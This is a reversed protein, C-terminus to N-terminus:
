HFLFNKWESCVAHTPLRDSQMQSSIRRCIMPLTQKGTDTEANYMRDSWHLRENKRSARRRRQHYEKNNKNDNWIITLYSYLRSGFLMGMPHYVLRDHFWCVIRMSLSLFWTTHIPKVRRERKRSYRATRVWHLSSSLRTPRANKPLRSGLWEQM